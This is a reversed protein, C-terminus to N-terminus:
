RLDQRFVGRRVVQAPNGALVTECESYTGVPRSGAGLTTRDPLHVGKSVIVHCGLWCNDGIVIAKDPNACEGAADALRHQDTDMFTCCWSTLAERGFTISKHCVILSKPGLHFDDGITLVGQEGVEICSGAGIACSSAIKVSGRINLRTRDYRFDSCQCTAFGIKVLGMKPKEEALVVRGSLNEVVTRHSILLPLRRAQRFPLLRYNYWISRPLALLYRLATLRKIRHRENM